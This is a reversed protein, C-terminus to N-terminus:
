SAPSQTLPCAVLIASHLDCLKHRKRWLVALKLMESM